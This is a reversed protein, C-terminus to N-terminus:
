QLVQAISIKLFTHGLQEPLKTSRGIRGEFINSLYGADVILIKLGLSKSFALILVFVNIFM